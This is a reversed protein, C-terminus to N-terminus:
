IDGRGGLKLLAEPFCPSQGSGKSTTSLLIRRGTGGLFEGQLQLPRETRSAVVDAVRGWGWEGLGGTQIKGRTRSGWPPGMLGCQAYHCDPSRCHKANM